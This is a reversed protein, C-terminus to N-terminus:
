LIYLGRFMAIPQELDALFYLHYYYIHKYIGYKLNLLRAAQVKSKDGFDLDSTLPNAPLSFCLEKDDINSAQYPIQWIAL